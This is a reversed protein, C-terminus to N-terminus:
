CPAGGQPASAEDLGDGPRAIMAAVLEVMMLDYVAVMRGPFARLGPASVRVLADLGGRTRHWAAEVADLTWRGATAPTPRGDFIDREIDLVDDVMQV